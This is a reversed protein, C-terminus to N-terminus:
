SPPNEKLCFDILAIMGSEKAKKHTGEIGRAITKWGDSIAWHHNGQGQRYVSLGVHYTEQKKSM